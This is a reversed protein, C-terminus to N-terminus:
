RGAFDILSGRLVFIGRWSTVSPTTQEQENMETM